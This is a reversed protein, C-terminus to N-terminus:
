SQFLAQISGLGWIPHNQRQFRDAKHRLQYPTTADATTAPECVNRLVCYCKAAETWWRHPLGSQLLVARTGECVRRVAREAVGNTEPRNPTSTDHLIRLSKCAAELELSGDCYIIKAKYAGLFYRIADETSAASKDNAPFCDVYHSYRDMVILSCTDGDHSPEDCKGIFSHDATILDGFKEPKTEDIGDTEDAVTDERKGARPVNRNRNVAFRAHLSSRFILSSMDQHCRTRLQQLHRLPGGKCRPHQPQRQSRRPIRLTYLRSTKLAVRPRCLRRCPCQPCFRFWGTWISSLSM